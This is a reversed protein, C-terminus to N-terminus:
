PNHWAVIVENEPDYVLISVQNRSITYHMFESNFFTEFVDQPVALWLVRNPERLELAALYNRYQGLAAHFETVRSHGSFVKIEVAIEESGKAFALLREAGLDLMVSFGPFTFGLPDHTITWGDKELAHRVAIHYADRAM